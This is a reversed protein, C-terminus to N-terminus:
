LLEHCRVMGATEAEEAIVGRERGASCEGGIQSRKALDFPDDVGFPWETSRLGHQGIQRAVGVAYCDRVSTQDRDIMVTHGELPLVIADLAAISVLLHREGAELEDAAEEDVHQGFAEVADTVVAQEGFVSAGVVEYARWSSSTAFDSPRDVAASTSGLLGVQGHQPPRIIMMSTKSRPQVGRCRGVAGAVTM